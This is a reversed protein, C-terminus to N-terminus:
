PQVDSAPSDPQPSEEGPLDPLESGMMGPVEEEPTVAPPTVAICGLMVPPDEQWFGCGSLTTALLLAAAARTTKSWPGASNRVTEAIDDRLPYNPTDPMDLVPKAQLVSAEPGKKTESM